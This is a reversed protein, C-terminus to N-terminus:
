RNGGPRIPPRQPRVPVEPAQPADVITVTVESRLGERVETRATGVGRGPANVRVPVYLSLATRGPTAAARLELELAVAQAYRAHPPEEVISAFDCYPCKSRCYPFHVYVGFSM